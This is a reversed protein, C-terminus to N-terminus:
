GKLKEEFWGVLQALTKLIVQPDHGGGEVVILKTDVGAKQLADHMSQSQQLPVLPDKDGHILLTPPFKPNVLLIPSTAKGIEAAKEAPTDKTVGFAPLFVALRPNKLAEAMDAGFNTFDTPPYYAVVAKIAPEKGGLMLSLHGGASAGTVGLRNPDVGYTSANAAIFKVATQVQTVIEPIQYKPQAGHVVEFVTIGRSTFPKALDENIGEHTSVWGGSVMWIVGIGNPQAPKFVDMTLAIGNKKLYIVDRVREQALSVASVALAAVTALLRRLM